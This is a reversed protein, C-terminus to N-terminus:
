FTERSWKDNRRLVFSKMTNEKANPIHYNWLMAIEQSREPPGKLKQNNEKNGLRGELTEKLCNEKPLDRILCNNTQLHKM